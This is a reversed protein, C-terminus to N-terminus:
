RWQFAVYNAIKKCVVDDAWSLKPKIKKILQDLLDAGGRNKWDFDLSTISELINELKIQIVVSEQGYHKELREKGRLPDIGGGDGGGLFVRMADNIEKDNM